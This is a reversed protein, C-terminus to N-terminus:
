VITFEKDQPLKLATSMKLSVARTNHTQYSKTYNRIARQIKSILELSMSEQLQLHLIKTLVSARIRTFAQFYWIFKVNFSVLVYESIM